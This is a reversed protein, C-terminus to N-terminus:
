SPVSASAAKTNEDAALQVAAHLGEFLVPKPCLQQLSKLTISHQSRTRGNLKATSLVYYEWQSLDLPNISSKDCHALLAFVYVDAHRKADPEVTGTVPDWGRRPPVIFSIASLKKQFWSQVYAASKVEVKIGDSTKLDFPEWENQVDTVGLGLARAVIYEAIRGRNTNGLVDSDAWQWFDFLTFDLPRDGCCFRENGTKRTTRLRELPTNM